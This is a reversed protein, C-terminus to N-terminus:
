AVVRTPAQQAAVVRSDERDDDAQVSGAQKSDTMTITVDSNNGTATAQSVFQEHGALVVVTESDIDVMRYTHETDMVYMGNQETGRADLWQQYIDVFEQKEATDDFRVTWGYGYKYDDAYSTNQFVMVRDAGWGEAGAAALDGSVEARLSSRLFLEGKTTKKYQNWVSDDGQEVTLDKPLDESPMKNHMIQEMSVAPNDYLKEFEATSNVRFKTYREGMVYPGLTYMSFASSNSWQSVSRSVAERGMYQEQYESEFYVASGEILSTEVKALNVGDTRLNSALRDQSGQYFQVAHLFEHAATIEAESANQTRGPAPAGDQKAIYRLVVNVEVNGDPSTQPQAYGAVYVSPTGQPAIGMVAQFSDNSFGFQDFTYPNTQEPSKSQLSPGKTVNSGTMELINRYVQDADFGLCVGSEQVIDDDGQGSYQCSEKAPESTTTETATQTATETQATTPATTPAETDEVTTSTGQTGTNCGALLLMLALTLALLPRKM